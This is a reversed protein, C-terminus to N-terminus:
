LRHMIELCARSNHYPCKWFGAKDGTLNPKGDPYISWFWEGTKRDILNQSVFNWCHMAQAIFQPDGTMESLNILGVIAEAQPWWHREMDTHNLEPDTEYILSGDDQFGELAAKALAICKPKTRDLLARDGLVKVAEYILWSAEIDHGYSILGSRSHWDEDFFLQLHHSRPDMIRDTFIEVLNKLKKELTKDKWIRFLNTYAELIHLHTNTTKKENIDKASLRLDELLKWDRSYAEYYGNKEMDFSKEEILHFLAASTDLGTRDGTARYYEAFAYLFFAQSYIQKKTDLPKGEATLIWYTGGFLEDFFRSLIYEKAREATQRYAPDKLHLFSASFTWLIRANLIGGKDAGKVLNGHGDIKGYFGGYENDTMKNMWFPLINQTLESHMESRLRDTELNM